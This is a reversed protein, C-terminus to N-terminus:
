SKGEKEATKLISRVAAESLRTAEALSRISMRRRLLGRRKRADLIATRLSITTSEHSRQAAALSERPGSVSQSV